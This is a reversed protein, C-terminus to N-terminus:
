KGLPAAASPNVEQQHPVPVPKLGTETEMVIPTQLRTPSSYAHMCQRPVCVCTRVYVCVRVYACVCVCARVCIMCVCTRVDYVYVCMCMCTCVCMCVCRRVYVRVYARVYARACLSLSFAGYYYLSPSLSRAISVKHGLDKSGHSARIERHDPHPSSSARIVSPTLWLCRILLRLM